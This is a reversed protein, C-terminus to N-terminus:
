FPAGDVRTRPSARRTGLNTHLTFAGCPVGAQNDIGDTLLNVSTGSAATNFTATAVDDAVGGSGLDITVTDGANDLDLSGTSAGVADPLPVLLAGFVVIAKGPKLGRASFVHRTAVADRIAIGTLDLFNGSANYLEVFEDQQFDVTGDGNSDFSMPNQMVENIILGDVSPAAAPVVDVDLVYTSTQVSANAGGLKVFYTGPELMLAADTTGDLAPCLGEGDDNNFAIASGDVDVDGTSDFVRLMLDADCDVIPGLSGGGDHNGHDPDVTTYAEIRLMGPSTMTLTYVDVDSAAIAGLLQAGDVVANGTQASGNPETESATAELACFGSCRDGGLTNADDCTEGADLVGNACLEPAATVTLDFPGEDGTGVGDVSVFYSAGPLAVFTMSEIGDAENECGSDDDTELIETAPDCAMTSVRIVADFQADVSVIVRRTDPTTFTYQLDPGAGASDGDECPGDGAHDSSSATDGSESGVLTGEMDVLSMVIPNPCSGPELVGGGEGGAGAESGAGGGGPEGGNGGSSGAGSGGGGPAAGAGGEAHGGVVGIDEGSDGCHLGSSVM